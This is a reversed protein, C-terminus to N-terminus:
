SQDTSPVYICRPQKRHGLVTFVSCGASSSMSPTRRLYYGECCKGGCPPGSTCWVEQRLYVMGRLNCGAFHLLLVHQLRQQTQAPSGSLRLQSQCFFCIWCLTGSFTTCTHDHNMALSQYYYVMNLQWRIILGPERFPSSSPHMYSTRYLLIATCHSFPEMNADTKTYKCRYKHIPVQIQTSTDTNTQLLLCSTRAAASLSHAVM